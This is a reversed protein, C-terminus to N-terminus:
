VTSLNGGLFLFSQTLLKLQATNEKPYRSTQLLTSLNDRFTLLSNDSQTANYRMLACIECSKSIRAKTQSQTSPNLANWNPAEYLFKLRGRM